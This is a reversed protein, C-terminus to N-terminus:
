RKLVWGSDKGVVRGLKKDIEENLQSMYKEDKIIKVRLEKEPNIMKVGYIKQRLFKLVNM